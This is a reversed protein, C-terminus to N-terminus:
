QVAVKKVIVNNNVELKVYYIGAPLDTQNIHVTEEHCSVGGIKLGMSNFIEVTYHEIRGLIKVTFNGDNPNPFITFDVENIEIDNMAMQLSALMEEDPLSEEPAHSPPPSINEDGRNGIECRNIEFLVNAGDRIYTDPNILIRNEAYFKVVAGSQIITNSITITCGTKTTNTNSKYTKSIPLNGECTFIGDLTFVETQDPDLWDRLRTSSSSGDWSVDFRGYWHLVPPCIPSGYRGRNQGVIRHEQNFFPAGSSGPETTGNNLTVQWHSDPPSYVWSWYSSVAPYYSFSIKMPKGRPHHIVTSSLPTTNNRDWGAYYIGEESKPQHTLKLLAFDSDTNHAKLEAGTFSKHGSPRGGDCRPRWYGFRFICTEPNTTQYGSSFFCHNATLYYPTLDKRVNNLLCGTCFATNNNTLILSVAHREVCWDDGEACLVDHHCELIDVRSDENFMDKYAHIVKGISIMVKESYSKEFYELVITNGQVLDTAFLNYENNSTRATFAGLVMSEDENYVFFQAEQPLWFKNFILNISYANESFIKLRWLRDGNILTDWTGCNTINLNADIDYGFRYPKLEGKETEDVRMLSDANVPPMVITEISNRLGSIAFSPPIGEESMQAYSQKVILFVLLITLIKINKM